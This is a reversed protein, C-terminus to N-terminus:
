VIKLIKYPLPEGSGSMNAIQRDRVVPAAMCGGVRYLLLAPEQEPPSLFDQSDQVDQFDQQM